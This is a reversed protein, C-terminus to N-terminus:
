SKGLSVGNFLIRGIATLIEAGNKDHDLWEVSPVQFSDEKKKLEVKAIATKAYEICGVIFENDNAIELEGNSNPTYAAKKLAKLREAHSPVNVLVSGEFSSNEEPKWEFTYM